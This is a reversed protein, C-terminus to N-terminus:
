SRRRKGATRQGLVAALERAAQIPSASGGTRRIGEGTSVTRTGEKSASRCTGAGKLVDPGARRRNHAAAAPPQMHTPAPTGHVFSRVADAPVTVRRGVRVAPLEGREIMRRVTRSSVGGLQRAAEDVSWLLADNM